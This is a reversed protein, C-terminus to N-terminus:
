ESGGDCWKQLLEAQIVIQDLNGLGESLHVHDSVVHLWHVCHVQFADFFRSYWTCVM